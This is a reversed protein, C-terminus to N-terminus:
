FRGNQRAHLIRMKKKEVAGTRKELNGRGRWCKLAQKHHVTINNPPCSLVNPSLHAEGGAGGSGNWGGGGINVEIVGETGAKAEM